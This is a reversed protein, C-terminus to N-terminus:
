RAHYARPCLLFIPRHSNGIDQLTRAPSGQGQGGGPDEAAPRGSLRFVTSLTPRRQGIPPVLRCAIVPLGRVAQRDARELGLLDDPIEVPAGGEILADEADKRGHAEFGDHIMPRHLFNKEVEGVAAMDGKDEYLEQVVARNRMVLRHMHEEGIVDVAQDFAHFPIAAADGFPPIVRLVPGQYSEPVVRFAIQQFRNM